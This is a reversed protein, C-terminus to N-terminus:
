RHGGGGMGGGRMGAFGMFIGHLFALTSERASAAALERELNAARRRRRVPDDIQRM